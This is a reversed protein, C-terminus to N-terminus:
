RYGGGFCTHFKCLRFRFAREAETIFWRRFSHFNVRSRRVGQVKDRVGLKERYSKFAKGAKNSRQQSPSADPGM